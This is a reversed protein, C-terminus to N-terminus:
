TVCTVHSERGSPMLDGAPPPLDTALLDALRRTASPVCAELRRAALFPPILLLMKTSLMVM